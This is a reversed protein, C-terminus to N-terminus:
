WSWGLQLWRALGLGHGRLRYGTSGTPCSLNDATTSIRSPSSLQIIRQVIYVLKTSAGLEVGGAVVILARISRMFDNSLGGLGKDRTGWCM